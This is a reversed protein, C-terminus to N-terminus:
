QEARELIIFIEIYICNFQIIVEVNKYRQSWAEKMNVRVYVYGWDLCSEPNM